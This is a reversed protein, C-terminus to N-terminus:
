CDTQTQQARAAAKQGRIPSRMGSYAPGAGRVASGASAWMSRIRRRIVQAIRVRPRRSSSAPACRGSGGTRCRRGRSRAASAAAAHASTDAMASRVSSTSWDPRPCYPDTSSRDLVSARPTIRRGGRETRVGPGRDACKVMLAALAPAFGVTSLKRVRPPRDVQVRSPAEALDISPAAAIAQLTAIAVREVRDDISVDNYGDLPKSRRQRFVIASQAATLKIPVAVGGDDAALERSFDVRLEKADICSLRIRSTRHQDRDNGKAEVFYKIVSFPGPPGEDVTWRSEQFERRDVGFRAIEDRSLYRVRENAIANAAKLLGDDMGMQTLYEELKDNSRERAKDARAVMAPSLAVARGDSWKLIVKSSHVGLRAGAPVQRDAAGALAYVCSSNCLTRVTRLDAAIVRGSTKIARCSDDDNDRLPDCGQPIARGVAASFGRKRLVRGISLAQDIDGGPSHFYIPLKRNLKDLFRIFRGAAAHDFAGEVAIWESCDAGCIGSEAKAVYFTLPPFADIPDVPKADQKNAAAAPLPVMLVLLVASLTARSIGAIRSM